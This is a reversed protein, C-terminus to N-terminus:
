RPLNVACAEQLLHNQGQAFQNGCIPCTNRKVQNWAWGPKGGDRIGGMVMKWVDSDM